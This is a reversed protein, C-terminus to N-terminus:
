VYDKGAPQKRKKFTRGNSFQYHTEPKDFDKDSTRVLSKWKVRRAKNKGAM